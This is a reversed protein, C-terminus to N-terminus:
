EQPQDHSSHKKLISKHLSLERGLHPSDPKVEDGMGPFESDYEKSEINAAFTVSPSPEQIQIIEEDSSNYDDDSIYSSVPEPEIKQKLVRRRFEKWVYSDNKKCVFYLILYSCSLALSLGICIYSLQKSPHFGHVKLVFQTTYDCYTSADVDRNSVQVKFYYEPVHPFNLPVDACPSKTQCHWKIGRTAFNFVTTGTKDQTANRSIWIMSGSNTDYTNYRKIERASFHKLKQLTVGGGIIQFTYNGTFLERHGTVQDQVHFYPYFDNEYYLCPLQPNPVACDYNFQNVRSLEDLSAQMDFLLRKGVPCGIMVETKYFGQLQKGDNTDDVCKLASNWIQLLVTVLRPSLKSTDDVDRDADRLIIQYTITSNVFYVQRQTLVQLLDPNSVDIKLQSNELVTMYSGPYQVSNSVDVSLTFEYSMTRDLYIRDPLKTDFSEEEFIKYYQDLPVYLYSEPLHNQYLFHYYDQLHVKAQRWDQLPDYYPDTYVQVDDCHLKMVQYVIGQYVLLANLDYLRQDSTFSPPQYMYKQVRNYYQSNNSEFHVAKFPCYQSSISDDINAELQQQYLDGAIIKAVPILHRSFHIATSNSMHYVLLQYLDKHSDFFVAIRHIDSVNPMSPTLQHINSLQTETPSPSIKMVNQFHGVIGYWVQFSLNSILKTITINEDHKSFDRVIEYWVEDLQNIFAYTGDQSSTFVTIVSGNVRPYSTMLYLTLGSNPSQILGNGWIFLHTSVMSTYSMGTWQWETNSDSDTPSLIYKILSSHIIDQYYLVHKIQSLSSIIQWSGNNPTGLYEVILMNQSLSQPANVLFLYHSSRTPDITACVVQCTESNIGQIESLWDYLTRDLSDYLSTFVIMEYTTTYEALYIQNAEDVALISWIGLEEQSGITLINVCVPLINTYVMGQTMEVVGSTTRLLARDALGVAELIELTPNPTDCVLVTDSIDVQLVTVTALQDNSALLTNTAPPGVLVTPSSSKVVFGGSSQVQWPIINDLEYLGDDVGDDVVYSNTYITNRHIKPLQGIGDSSVEIDISKTQNDMPLPVIWAHSCFEEKSEPINCKVQSSSELHYLDVLAGYLIHQLTADGIDSQISVRPVIGSAALKRAVIDSVKDECVVRVRLAYPFSQYTDQFELQSTDVALNNAYQFVIDNVPLTQQNEINSVAECHPQTQKVVEVFWSCDTVLNLNLAYGNLLGVHKRNRNDLVKSSM